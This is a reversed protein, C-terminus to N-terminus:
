FIRKSNLYIHSDVLDKDKKMAESLTKYETKRETFGLGENHIVTIM